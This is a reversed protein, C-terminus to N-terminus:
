SVGHVAEAARVPGTGVGTREVASAIEELDESTLELGAAQIWGDVQAPSRAGVIAATVGPWAIVWAVAIASVTTGHRKAIPVLADRLRLNKELNPSQFDPSARRWDGPALAAVRELSFSDTLLGSQMPSCCIVATGHEACWPISRSAADRHILSLPTQLSDVHRISECRELLATDFNSVGGFRVKGDAILQVMEGWSEEIPTGTEDPWHLQYLDICELGLRKLSADCERRISEPRLIRRPPATPHYEDWVRGCKTFILPREDRPLERAFRGVLEESHGLGYVAATDIWNIGLEMAHRMTALSAADDQSGWGLSWGGGGIVWAGFGVTTIPVNTTGLIRAPLIMIEFGETFRGIAKREATAASTATRIACLRRYELLL